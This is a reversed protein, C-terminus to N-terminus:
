PHEQRSSGSLPKIELGAGTRIAVIVLPLYASLALYGAAAPHRAALWAFPLLWVLNVVTVFVTVRAHGWTAALHQYAHCRHARYWTEGRMMRRLLTITADTFFIGLLILWSWINIATTRSTDIAMVGIVFGLFGSSVDGMFIKAPPWNWFLFGASAAALALLWIALDIRGGYWLILAASTVVTIAQASAIGDIGDMFNFLNLLWIVAIVLCIFSLPAPIWQLLGFSIESIPGLLAIAVVVAIAHVTLRGLVPLAHRDDMFGIAAVALGGSLVALASQGPLIDGLWCAITALGFAVVIALGGGSPTPIVHSSRENPHDLLERALAFRRVLATAGVSILFTVALIAGWIM